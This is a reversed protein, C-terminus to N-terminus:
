LWSRAGVLNESTREKREKGGGHLRVGIRRIRKEGHKSKSSEKENKDREWQMELCPVSAGAGVDEPNRHSTEQLKNVRDDPPVISQVRSGDPAVDTLGNM